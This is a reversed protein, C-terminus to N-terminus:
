KNLKAPYSCLLEGNRQLVYQAMGEIAQQTAGLGTILQIEESIETYWHM